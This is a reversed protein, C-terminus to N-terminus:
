GHNAARETDQEERVFPTRLFGRFGQWEQGRYVPLGLTIEKTDRRQRYTGFLRDWVSLISTFNSNLEEREISHHVRHMDPTVVATRVLRDASGLALNSHHFLTSVNLVVEFLVLQDFTMGLAIVVPLRVITSLVLEGPHFRLATTTDMAIDAHHAKHFLWLFAVRHNLRHWLYMWVDFLLYVLGARWFPPLPLARGLGPTPPEAAALAAMTIGALVFRTLLGNLLAVAVHHLGHRLRETRGPYHPALGEFLYILVLAAIIIVLKADM